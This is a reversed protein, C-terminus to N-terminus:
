SCNPTSKRGPFLYVSYAVPLGSESAKKQMGTWIFFGTFEHNVPNQLRKRQKKASLCARSGVYELFIM